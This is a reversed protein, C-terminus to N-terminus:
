VCLRSGYVNCINKIGNFICIQVSWAIFVSIGYTMLPWLFTQVSNFMCKESVRKKDVKYHAPEYLRCNFKLRFIYELSFYYNNNKFLILIIRYKITCNFLKGILYTTTKPLLVNVWIKHFITHGYSTYSVTVIDPIYTVCYNYSILVNDILLQKHSYRIASDNRLFKTFLINKLIFTM